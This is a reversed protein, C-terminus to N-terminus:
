GPTSEIWGWRQVKRGGTELSSALNKIAEDVPSAGVMHIREQASALSASEISIGVSMLICIAIIGVPGGSPEIDRSPRMM